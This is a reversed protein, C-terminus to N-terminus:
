TTTFSPPSGSQRAFVNAFKRVHRLGFEFEILAKSWEAM